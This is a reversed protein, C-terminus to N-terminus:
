SNYKEHEEDEIAKIIRIVQHIAKPSLDKTQKFLLQLDERQSLKDWFDALEPDDSLAKKIKDAPTREDTLGLIYDVSVDFYEVIKQLTDTDPKRKGTEYGAVTSRSIRLYSALDDQTIGKENRLQKIRDKLEAM